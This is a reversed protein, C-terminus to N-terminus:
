NGAAAPMLSKEPGAHRPKVDQLEIGPASFNMSCPGAEYDVPDTAGVQPRLGRAHHFPRPVAGAFLRAARASPDFLRKPSTCALSRARIIHRKATIDVM